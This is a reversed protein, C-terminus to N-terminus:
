IAQQAAVAAPAPAPAAAAAAKADAASIWFRERPLECPVVACLHPLCGRDPGERTPASGPRALGGSGGSVPQAVTAVASASAAAPVSAPGSASDPASGAAAAASAVARHWEPAMVRAFNAALPVARGAGGTRQHTRQGDLHAKAEATLLSPFFVLGSASELAELPVAFSSLPAAPDMPSNPLCFAAAALLTPPASPSSAPAAVVVVQSNLIV